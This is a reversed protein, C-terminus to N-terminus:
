KLTIIWHKFNETDICKTYLFDYVEFLGLQFINLFNQETQIFSEDTQKQPHKPHHHLRYIELFAIITSSSDHMFISVFENV